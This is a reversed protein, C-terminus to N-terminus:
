STDRQILATLMDEYARATLLRQRQQEWTLGPAYAAATWWAAQEHLFTRVDDEPISWTVVPLVHNRRRWRRLWRM